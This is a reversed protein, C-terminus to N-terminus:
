KLWATSGRASSVAILWVTASAVMEPSARYSAKVGPLWWFCVRCGAGHNVDVADTKHGWKRTLPGEKGDEAALDPREHLVSRQIDDASAWPEARHPSTNALGHSNGRLAGDPLRRQPLVCGTKSCALVATAVQAIEASAARVGRRM